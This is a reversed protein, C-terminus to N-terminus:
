GKRKSEKGGSKSEHTEIAAKIEDSSMFGTKSLKRALKKILDAYPLLMEATEKWYERLKKDFIRSNYKRDLLLEMDGIADDIDTRQSWESMENAQDLNPIKGKSCELIDDEAIYGALAICISRDPYLTRSFSSLHHGNGLYDMLVDGPSYGQISCMVAHGIEHCATEFAGKHRIIRFGFYDLLAAASDSSLGRAGQLFRCLVAGKVGTKLAIQRYSTKAKVLEARIIKEIHNDTNM